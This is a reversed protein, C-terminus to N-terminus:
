TRVTLSRLTIAGRKVSRREKDVFLYRTYTAPEDYVICSTQIIQADTLTDFFYRVQDDDYSFRLDKLMNYKKGINEISEMIYEIDENEFIDDVSELYVDHVKGMVSERDWQEKLRSIGKFMIEKRCMPCNHETSKSYWKKVCGYCFSHSCLFQCKAPESYCVPCEM